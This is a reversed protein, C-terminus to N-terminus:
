RVYGRNLQPKIERARMYDLGGSAKWIFHIHADALDGKRNKKNKEKESPDYLVMQPKLEINRNAIVHDAYIARTVSIFNERDNAKGEAGFNQYEVKIGRQELYIGLAPGYTNSELVVCAVNLEKVMKYFFMNVRDPTWNQGHDDTGMQFMGSKIEFLYRNFVGGVYWGFPHGGGSPDIALIVYDSKQAMQIPNNIDLGQTMLFTEYIDFSDNLAVVDFTDGSGSHINQFRRETFAKGSLTDTVKSLLEDNDSQMLHPADKTYMSIFCIDDRKLSEKKMLDQFMLYAGTDMNATMIIKMNKVARQMLFLTSVADPNKKMAVDFEDVWSIVSDGGKVDAITTEHADLRTGNWWLIYDNTITRLLKNNQRLIIPDNMLNRLIMRAQDGKGCMLDFQLKQDPYKLTYEHLGAMVGTSKGVRQVGECFIFKYIPNVIADVLQHQKLHFVVPRKYAPIQHELDFLHRNELMFKAAQFNGSNALNFMVDQPKFSTDPSEGSQQENPPHSHSANKQIPSAADGDVNNNNKLPLPQPKSKNKGMLEKWSTNKKRLHASLTPKSINLEKRIQKQTHGDLIGLRCANYTRTPSLKGRAKSM